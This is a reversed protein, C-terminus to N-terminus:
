RIASIYVEAIISQSSSEGLDDCISSVYGGDLVVIYTSLYSGNLNVSLIIFYGVTIFCEVDVKPWVGVWDGKLPYPIVVCFLCGEIIRIVVM